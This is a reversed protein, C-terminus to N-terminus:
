FEQYTRIKVRDSDITINVFSHIQGGDPFSRPMERLAVRGTIERPKNFIVTRFYSRIAEKVAAKLSEERSRLDGHDASAGRASSGPFSSGYWGQLRAIEYDKTHYRFRIEIRREEEIAGLYELGRDGWPIQYVPELTFIEQVQRAKDSPQYSFDFGYIIGSFWQRSLELLILISEENSRVDPAPAQEAFPRDYSNLRDRDVWFTGQLQSFDPFRTQATALFPPLLMFLLLFRSPSLFRSPAPSRLGSIKKETIM